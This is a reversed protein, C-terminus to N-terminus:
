HQRILGRTDKGHSGAEKRFCPTYATYCIPLDKEALIENRHINTLPVEATPILFLDTDEAHFLDHEFKPLQGTGTMSARNVLYPPLVETYGHEETHLDLMLNVLARELKAGLGSYLAFRAGSLKSAREFDLIGLDEGIDWHAKPEFDLVPKEGWTRVEVNDDESMGAPSQAHPINPLGMLLESLQNEVERLQEDIGKIQSSVEKMQSIEGQVQSKDKTKGILASVKNKEAKLSEGETLLERRRQDLDAFGSLDIKGGRAALAKEAEAFNERLYKIDLM